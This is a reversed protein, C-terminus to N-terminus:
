FHYEKSRMLDHSSFKERELNEPTLYNRNSIRFIQLNEPKGCTVSLSSEYQIPFILRSCAPNGIKIFIETETLKKDNKCTIVATRFGLNSEKEAVKVLLQDHKFNTNM